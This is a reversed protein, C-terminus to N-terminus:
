LNQEIQSIAFSGNEAPGELLTYKRRLDNEKRKVSFTQICVINLVEDYM